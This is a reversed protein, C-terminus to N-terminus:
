NPSTYKSLNINKARLIQFIDNKYPIGVGDCVNPIKIRHSIKGVKAESTVVTFGQEMAVAILLLDTSSKELQREFNKNKSYVDQVYAMVLHLSHRSEDAMRIGEVLESLEDVEKGDNSKKRGIKVEEIVSQVTFIEQDDRLWQWFSPAIEHQYFRNYSEIFINTDLLYRM